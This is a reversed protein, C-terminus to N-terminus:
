ALGLRYLRAVAQARTRAGLKRKANEIHSHVTNTSLTLLDAIEGDSRGDAVFALCDRERPTLPSRPPAAPLSLTLMREHAVQAAFQIARLERASFRFQEFGLSVVGERGDPERCPVAIGDEMDLERALDLGAWGRLSAVGGESWRFPMSTRGLALIVPNGKDLGRRAYTDRWGQPSIQAYITVKDVMERLAGMPLRPFSGAFLGRIGYRGLGDFLVRGVAAPTHATELRDILGPDPLLDQLM